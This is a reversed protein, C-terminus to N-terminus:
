FLFFKIVENKKGSFIINGKTESMREPSQQIPSVTVPNLKVISDNSEKKQAKLTQFLFLSSFSLVFLQKMKNLNIRHLL